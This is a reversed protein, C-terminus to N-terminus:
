DWQVNNLGPCLSTLLSHLEWGNKSPVPVTLQLGTQYRFQAASKVSAHLSQYSSKNTSTKTHNTNFLIRVRETTVCKWVTERGRWSEKHRHCHSLRLKQAWTEWRHPSVTFCQTSDALRHKATTRKHNHRGPIVERTRVDPPFIAGVPAAPLTKAWCVTWSM